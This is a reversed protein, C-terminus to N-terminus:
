RRQGAPRAGQGASGSRCRMPKATLKRDSRVSPALSQRRAGAFLWVRVPRAAPRRPAPGLPWWAASSAVRTRVESPPPRPPDVPSLLPPLTWPLHPRRRAAAGVRGHHSGPPHPPTAACSPWAARAPSCTANLTPGAPRQPRAMAQVPVPWSRPVAPTEPGHHHRTEPPPRAMRHHRHVAHWQVSPAECGQSAALRLAHRAHLRLCKAPQFGACRPLAPPSQPDQGLESSPARAGHPQPIRTRPM